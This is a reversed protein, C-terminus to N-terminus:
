ILLNVTNRKMEFLLQLLELDTAPLYSVENYYKGFRNSSHADSNSFLALGHRAAFLRIDEERTPSTNYSSIEIGDPPNAELNTNIQPAYRFPHALIIFGGLNRVYGALDSYRWDERELRPDNVGLVLWDERESTIEIGTYIKFPSYQQNLEALHSRPVLRHHDTFAIADLRAAIAARVQIETSAIACGSRESAHVHLDIKM